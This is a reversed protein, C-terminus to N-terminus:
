RQRFELQRLPNSHLAANDLHAYIAITTRKRHKLLKGVAALKVGNTAGQSAYTHRADHFCM